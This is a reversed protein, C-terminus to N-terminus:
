GNNEQEQNGEQYRHYHQDWKGAYSLIDRCCSDAHPVGNFMTSSSNNFSTGFRTVETTVSEINHHPYFANYIILYTPNFNDYSDYRLMTGM